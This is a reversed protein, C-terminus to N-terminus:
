VPLSHGLGNLLAVVEAQTRGGTSGYKKVDRSGDVDFPRGPHPKPRRKSDTNAAVTLDYLDAFLLAERSIPYKWGEMSAAIASSPDKRLIGTLRVVEAWGMDEPVTSLPM